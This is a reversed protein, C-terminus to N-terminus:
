GFKEVARALWKRNTPTDIFRFYRFDGTKPQEKYPILKIGDKAAQKAAEVDSDYVEFDDLRAIYKVHDDDLGGSFIGYGRLGMKGWEKIICQRVEAEDTAEDYYAKAAEIVKQEIKDSAM